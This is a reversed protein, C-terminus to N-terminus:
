KIIDVVIRGPSGIGALAFSAPKTVYIGYVVSQDDLAPLRDITTVLGGGVKLEDTHVRASDGLSRIGGLVVRISKGDGSLSAQAHPVQLLPRGDPTAMDFVVRFFAGHDSWRIDKLQIGDILVGVSQSYKSAPGYAAAQEQPQTQGPPSPPEPAPLPTTSAAGAATTSAAQSGSGGCGGLWAAVAAGAVAIALLISLQSRNMKLDSTETDIHAASPNNQCRSLIEKL